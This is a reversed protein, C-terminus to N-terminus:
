QKIKRDNLYLTVQDLILLGAGITIYADAPNFTWFHIGAFHVDLFDYVAGYYIRDFLNGLAGGIILSIAIAELKTKSKILLYILFGTISLTMLLLLIVGSLSQASLFGFSIGYNWVETINFFSTIPVSKQPILRLYDHVYAKLLRDSIAAIIIVPIAIKILFSKNILM